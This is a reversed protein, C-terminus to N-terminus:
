RALCVAHRGVGGPRGAPRPLRNRWRPGGGAYRRRGHGGGAGQAFKAIKQSLVRIDAVIARANNEQTNYRATFFFNTLLIGLGALLIVVWLGYAGRRERGGVAAAATSM